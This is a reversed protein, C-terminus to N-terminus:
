FSSRCFCANAPPRVPEWEWGRPNLQASLFPDLCRMGSRPPWEPVLFHEVNNAKGQLFVWWAWPLTLWPLAVWPLGVALGAWLLGCRLSSGTVACSLCKVAFGRPEGKNLSLCALFSIHVAPPSGPFYCCATSPRGSTWSAQPCGPEESVGDSCSSSFCCCWCCYTEMLGTSDQPHHHLWSTNSESVGTWPHARDM